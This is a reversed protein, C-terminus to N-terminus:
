ATTASTRRRTAARQIWTDLDAPVYLARGNIICYTPGTGRGAHDKLGGAGVIVGQDDLYQRARERTLFRM